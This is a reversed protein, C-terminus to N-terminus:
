FNNLKPIVKKIDTGEIAANSRKNDDIIEKISFLDKNNLFM